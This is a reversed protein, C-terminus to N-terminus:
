GIELCFRGLTDSFKVAAAACLYALGLGIM